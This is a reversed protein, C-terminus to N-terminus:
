GRWLSQRRVGGWCEVAECGLWRGLVWVRVGTIRQVRIGTAMMRLRSNRGGMKLALSRNPAWRRM